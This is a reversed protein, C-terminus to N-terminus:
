KIHFKTLIKAMTGFEKNEGGAALHLLEKIFTEDQLIEAFATELLFGVPEWQM